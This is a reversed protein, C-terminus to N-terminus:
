LQLLATKMRNVVTSWLFNSLVLNRGNRGMIRLADPKKLARLVNDALSEADGKAVLAGNVGPTVYERLAWGDTVVCPLEHLMAELPAIGFPEYLSPLVFLCAKRFLAHLQASQGPDIKSLHGHYFVGAPCDAPRAPGVIHLEANRLEGKIMVFARLLVDGGKRKFETGIFLLCHTDYRKDPYVEPIKEINV